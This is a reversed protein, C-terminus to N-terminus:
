QDVSLRPHAVKGPNHHSDYGAHKIEAPWFGGLATYMLFGNVPSKFTIVGRNAAPVVTGTLVCTDIVILNEPSFPETEPSVREWFVRANTGKGGLYLRALEPDTEKKEITGETLDVELTKGMWGYAM